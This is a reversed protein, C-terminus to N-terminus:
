GTVSPIRAAAGRRVLTRAAGRVAAGAVNAGRVTAVNTRAGVITNDARLWIRRTQSQGPALVPITWMARGNAFIPTPGTRVFTFGSPLIDTIVVNTAPVGGVNRVTIFWAGTQGGRLRAPGRKAITLKAVQLPNAATATVQPVNNTVLSGPDTAGGPGASRQM